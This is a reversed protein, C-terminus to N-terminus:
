ESKFKDTGYYWSREIVYTNYLLIQENYINRWKNLLIKVFNYQKAM